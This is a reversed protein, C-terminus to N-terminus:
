KQLRALRASNCHSCSSKSIYEIYLKALALYVGLKICRKVGKLVFLTTFQRQDLKSGWSCKAYRDQVVGYKFVAM